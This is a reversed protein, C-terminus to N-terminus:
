VKKTRTQHERILAATAFTVTIALLSVTIPTLRIGWPTYNLLLGVIPVLALSMGISLAVREISDLEKESFLAKMFSHGAKTVSNLTIYYIGTLSYDLTAATVILIDAWNLILLTLSSLFLPLSFKLIPNLCTRASNNNDNYGVIVKDSRLDHQM